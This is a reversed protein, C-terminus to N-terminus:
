LIVYNRLRPFFTRFRLNIGWEDRTLVQDVNLIIIAYSLIFASDVNAFGSTNQTGATEQLVFLQVQNQHTNDQLTAVPLAIYEM